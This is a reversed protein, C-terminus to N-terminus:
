QVARAVAASIDAFFAVQHERDLCRFASQVKWNLNDRLQQRSKTRAWGAHGERDRGVAGGDGNFCAPDSVYNAIIVSMDAFANVLQGDSVSSCNFLLGIKYSLNNSLRQSDQMRAWGLHDNRNTSGVGPDAAFCNAGNSGADGQNSSTGVAGKRYTYRVVEPHGGFCGAQVSITISFEDPYEQQNVTQRLYSSDIFGGQGRRGLQVAPWGLDNPEPSYSAKNDWRLNYWASIDNPRRGLMQGKGEIAFVAQSGPTISKPPSFTLDYKDYVGESQWRAEDHLNYATIYCINDGYHSQGDVLLKADVLGWTDGSGESALRAPVRSSSEGESKDMANDIGTHGLPRPPQTAARPGKVISLSVILGMLLLICALITRRM